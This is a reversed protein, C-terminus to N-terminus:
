EGAQQAAQQLADLTKKPDTAASGIQTKVQASVAPWTPDSLPYFVATPLIQLFPTLAKQDPDAQLATLASQTVPLLSYEKDFKVTNDKSYAFDLFAKIQEKHGGKKFAMVWDAVGLTAKSAGDKGPMSTWTVDMNKVDNLQTPIGNLMGVKGSAFDKALDTRNVSAPSQETLGADVWSKLQTFTDINAQSNIVYKGKDDQYGGHNELMWIFSEGQAEEKGLPVGLPIEVGAKKLATADATIDAWTKPPNAPDLGAKKFLENNILFMRASSIFPIGYQTGEQEGAHAMAPLFDGTTGASLVDQAPYLQGNKAFDAYGGTQLIDPQNGNQVMTKVQTDIDNWNIVQLDVKIKPNQQEFASIVGQWYAQTPNQGNSGYDAAVFKITTVGDASTSGSNSGKSCGSLALAGALTAASLSLLRRKM